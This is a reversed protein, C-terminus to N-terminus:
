VEKISEDTITPIRRNNFIEKANNFSHKYTENGLDSINNIGILSECVEPSKNIVFYGVSANFFMTAFLSIDEFDLSVQEGREVFPEMLKRIILGQTESIAMPTYEKIKITNM